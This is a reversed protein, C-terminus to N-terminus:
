PLASQLPSYGAPFQRQQLCAQAEFGFVKRTALQNVSSM